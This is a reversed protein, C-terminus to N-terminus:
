LAQELSVEEATDKSVLSNVSIRANVRAHAIIEWELMLRLSKIVDPSFVDGVSIIGPTLLAITREVSGSKLGGRGLNRKRTKGVFIGTVKFDTEPPHESTLHHIFDGREQFTQTCYNCAHLFKGSCKSQHSRLSSDNNFIKCCIRCQHGTIFDDEGEGIKLCLFKEPIKINHMRLHIKIDEKRTTSFCCDLKPCLITHSYKRISSREVLVATKNAKKILIHRNYAEATAFHNLCSPCDKNERLGAESNITQHTNVEDSELRANVVRPEAGEGGRKRKSMMCVERHSPALPSLCFRARELIDAGGRM